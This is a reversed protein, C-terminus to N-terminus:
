RRGGNRLTQQSHRRFIPREAALEKVTDLVGTPGEEDAIQSVFWEIAEAPTAFINAQPFRAKLVKMSQNMAKLAHGEFGVTDYVVVTREPKDYLAMTAEQMSYAPPQGNGPNGLYFMLYGAEAKVKEELVRAEETWHEVVPNFIDHSSYGRAVLTDTFGDRWKNAGVTGGLFIVKNDM